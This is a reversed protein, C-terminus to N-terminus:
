NGDESSAVEYVWNDPGQHILRFANPYAQQLLLFCADEPPLWYSRQHHAVVIVEAHHRQIGDMLVKPDSIPPFWVVRAGTYHYVFDPERAMLVPTSPENAHIWEAAEMEPYLDQKTIEPHTNARGIAAITRTGTLVLVAIAAIAVFRLVRPTWLEVIPRLRAFPLAGESSKRSSHFMLMAIGVAALAFWFVTAAAAQHFDGHTHQVDTSFAVRGWAFLASTLGLLLGVVLMCLDVLKPQRISQYKLERVGRWLYLCALPLVPLLFRDRYDWPWLVFIFEYCLFYWDHLQGGCHLSSALGLAVLLLVGAIAPSSWFPSIYHRTLLQTFGATRTVINRGVRSPIDSLHAMGLEPYHGNKVRLQSVYSQPYGPLQWELTQHHQAWASWGVQAAIGLALPILFRRMRRRGLEPVVFLSVACWIVLGMLLAVGVSRILVALALACGLLLVWGVLARGPDARDIKLALLLAFMSVLLYPMEPFVVVTNFGFLPPSSALLLCAAAALGRGEVRRLLEYAAIWGFTSCVAIVRFMVAPTFGAFWGVLALLFPLGPPLTTEPLLSLQYSHQEVISRALDPYGADTVFDVTRLYHTFQFVGMVLIFAYVAWDATSRPLSAGRTSEVPQAFTLSQM